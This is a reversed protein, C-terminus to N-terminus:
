EAALPLPHRKLWAADQPPAPRYVWKGDIITPKLIM